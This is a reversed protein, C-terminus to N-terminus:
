LFLYRRVLVYVLWAAYGIGDVTLESLIFFIDFSSMVISEVFEM